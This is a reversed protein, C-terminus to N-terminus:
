AMFGDQTVIVGSKSEMHRKEHHESHHHHPGLIPIDTVFAEHDQTDKVISKNRVHVM